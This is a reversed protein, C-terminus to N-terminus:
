LHEEIELLGKFDTKDLDGIIRELELSVRLHASDRLNHYHKSIYNDFAKQVYNDLSIYEDHIKVDTIGAGRDYSILVQKSIVIDLGLLKLRVESLPILSFIDSITDVNINM